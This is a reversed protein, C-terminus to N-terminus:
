THNQLNRIMFVSMENQCISRPTTMHKMIALNDLARGLMFVLCRSCLSPLLYLIAGCRVVRAFQSLPGVCLLSACRHLLNCNWRDISSLPVRCPTLSEYQSSLLSHLFNTMKGDKLLQPFCSGGFPSVVQRRDVSTSGQQVLHIEPHTVMSNFIARNKAQHQAVKALSLHRKFLDGRGCSILRRTTEFM